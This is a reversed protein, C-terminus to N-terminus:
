SFPSNSDVLTILDKRPSWSRKSNLYYPEQSIIQIKSSLCYPQKPSRNCLHYPQKPMLSRSAELTILESASRCRTALLTTLYNSSSSSRTVLLTTFRKPSPRPKAVLFIHTQYWSMILLLLHANCIRFKSHIKEISCKVWIGNDRIDTKGM